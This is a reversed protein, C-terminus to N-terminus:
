LQNLDPFYTVTKLEILLYRLVLHIKINSIELFFPLVKEKKNMAIYKKM